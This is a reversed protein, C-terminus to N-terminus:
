DEHKKSFVFIDGIYNEFDKLWSKEKESYTM